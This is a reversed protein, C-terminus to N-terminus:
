EDNGEMTEVYRRYLNYLESADDISTVDASPKGVALYLDWLEPATWYLVACGAWRLAAAALKFRLWMALRSLLTPQRETM